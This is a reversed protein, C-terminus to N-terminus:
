LTQVFELAKDLVSTSEIYTNVKRIIDELYLQRQVPLHHSSYPTVKPLLSSLFSSSLKLYSLISSITSVPDYTLEKLDIFLVNKCLSRVVHETIRKILYISAFIHENQLPELLSLFNKNNKYKNYEWFSSNLFTSNEQHNKSIVREMSVFMDIPNRKTYIIKVDPNAKQIHPLLLDGRVTKILLNGPVKERLTSIARLVSNKDYLGKEPEGLLSILDKDLSHYETWYSPINKHSPHVSSNSTYLNKLNPHFPEYLCLYTKTERLLQWLISTGTRYRGAIVVFDKDHHM